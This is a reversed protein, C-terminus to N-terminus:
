VRYKAPPLLPSPSCHPRTSREKVAEQGACGSQHKGEKHVATLSEVLALLCFTSNLRRSSKKKERNWFKCKTALPRCSGERWKLVLPTIELDTCPTRSGVRAPRLQARGAKGCRGCSRESRQRCLPNANAERLLASAGREGSERGRRGSGARGRVCRRGLAPGARGNGPPPAAPAPGAAPCPRRLAPGRPGAPARKGRPSAPGPTPRPSGPRRLPRLRLARAPPRPSATRPPPSPAPQRGAPGPRRPRPTTGRAPCCRCASCCPAAWGGTTSRCGRGGSERRCPACRSGAPSTGRWACGAPPAAGGCWPAWRRRCRSGRRRPAAAGGAGGSTPARGRPTGWSCSGGREGARCGGRWSCPWRGGRTPSGASAATAARRRSGAPGPAAGPRSPRTAAAPSRGPARCATGSRRARPGPGSRAPAWSTCGPPHPPATPAAGAQGLRETLPTNTRTKLRSTLRLPFRASRPSSPFVLQTGEWLAARAAGRAPPYSDPM